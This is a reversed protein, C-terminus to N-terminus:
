RKTQQRRRLSGSQTFVDDLKVDWPKNALPTCMQQDFAVGILRTLPLNKLKEFHRDYFGGGMGVRNFHADFASLPACVLQLARPSLKSAHHSRGILLERFGFPSEHWRPRKGLAHFQMQGPATIIPVAITKGCYRAANILPTVDVEDAFPLYLAIVNASQFARTHAIHQCIQRSAKAKTADSLARRAALSQKRAISPDILSPM